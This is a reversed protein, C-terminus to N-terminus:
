SNRQVGHLRPALMLTVAVLAPAIAAAAAPHRSLALAGGLAGAVLALLVGLRRMLHRASGAAASEAMSTLTGTVFTTTIGALAVRRACATQVGMALASVSVLAVDAVGGPRGGVATWGALFVLQCGLSVALVGTIRRPWVAGTDLTRTFRFALVLGATFALTAAAARAIHLDLGQAGAIGLLVLNGTMNATFVGGLGLYAVADTAGAAVTLLLPLLDALRRESAGAPRRATGATGDRGAPPVDCPAGPRPEGGTVPAPAAPDPGAATGLAPGAATDPRPEGRAGSRTAHGPAPAATADPCPGDGSGPGSRRGAGPDARPGAPSAAAHGDRTGGPAASAAPTHGPQLSM